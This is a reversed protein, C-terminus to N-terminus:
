SEIYRRKGAAATDNGFTETSVMTDVVAALIASEKDAKDSFGRVYAILHKRDKTNCVDKSAAEKYNL